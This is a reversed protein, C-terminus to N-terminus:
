TMLGVQGTPSGGTELAMQGRLHERGEGGAQRVRGGRFSSGWGRSNGRPAKEQSGLGGAGGRGFDWLRVACLRVSKPSNM